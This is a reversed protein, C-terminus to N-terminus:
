PEKYESCVRRSVCRRAEAQAELRSYTLDVERFDKIRRGAAEESIPHRKQVPLSKCYEETSLKELQRSVLEPLELKGNLHRHIYRAAKKGAAMAQVVMTPGTVLDGGAYVGPLNTTLMHPDVTLDVGLSALSPKQGIAVVVTDADMVLEQGEAFVPKIRGTEDLEITKVKQLSVGSVRGNKSLIKRPGLSCNVKVGEEEARSVEWAFAPMKDRAELCVLNVESAGLRIAVRAADVAVNGGGIVLVQGTVDVKQGANIARLLDVGTTVGPTDEGDIGLRLSQPAGTALFVAQFDRRLNDLQVKEGVPNNTKIEVGLRRIYNIEKELIDKPLRYTPIGYRLMGGPEPSAEFITVEYGLLILEHAAALGAPGAGVIAIKKGLKAVRPVELKDVDVQEAIFRKVACIAIPEDVYSSRCVDECPHYCVHGLVAPLANTRRMLKYGELFNGDACLSLYGPIDMHIPCAVRCPPVSLADAPCLNCCILCRVCKEDDVQNIFSEMSVELAEWPCLINCYACGTCAEEDIWVAM